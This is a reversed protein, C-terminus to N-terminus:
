RLLRWKTAMLCPNEGPKEAQYYVSLLTGDGNEVTSPYGMDRDPGKSLFIENAVDWTRGQDDSVTVMEHMTDRRVYTCLLKGNRLKLFHPPYGVLPTESMASWTRGGDSSVVQTMCPTWTRCFVIIRGDDTEVLYPEETFKDGDFPPQPRVKALIHWSRGNDTSEEILLCVESDPCHKHNWMDWRRYAKGAFLIRGDKLQVAGHPASSQHPVPAEWTKGGDVSRSTWFGRAEDVLETPLKSFAKPYYKSFCTSSFWAALLDGNALETIGCDRDDVISNRFIEPQTTWTEGGDFSRILEDSGYPCVHKERNGSYCAILEGSRRRMVTPWGIYEAKRIPRTWIIEARNQVRPVGCVTESEEGSGAICASAAALAIVTALKKAM